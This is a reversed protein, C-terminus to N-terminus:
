MGCLLDEQNTVKLLIKTMFIAASTLDLPSNAAKFTQKEVEIEM